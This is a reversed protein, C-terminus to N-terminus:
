LEPSQFDLILINTLCIGLAELPSDKRAEELKQHSRSIGPQLQITRIEAEAKM